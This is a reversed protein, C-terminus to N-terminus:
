IRVTTEFEFHQKQHEPTAQGVFMELIDKSNVVRTEKGYTRNLSPETWTTFKFTVRGRNWRELVGSYYPHHGTPSIDGQTVYTVCNGVQKKWNRRPIKIPELRLAM